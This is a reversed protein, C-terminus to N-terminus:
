AGARRLRWSLRWRAWMASLSWRRSLGSVRRVAVVAEEVTLDFWEGTLRLPKLDDHIAREVEGIVESQIRICLWIRLRDPNGTQLERLRRKPDNTIGVKCPGYLAFAIIYLYMAM